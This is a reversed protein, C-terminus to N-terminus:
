QVDELEEKVVVFVRNINKFDVSPEVIIETLLNDDDYKVEKIQGIHIGKALVGLGSTVITNGEEVVAHPDFLEGSIVSNVSGHLIGDYTKDAGLVEFGISTKNDIITVVKGWNAGVEYVLGVLGNGNMVASYKTIGDDTGADIIFMNYWNGTDKGIINATIYSDIRMDDVYNLVSKLENLDEYEEETLQAEILAQNLRENEALLTKNEDELEWISIIPDIKDGIFKGVNYVGKQIPTVIRGVVNEVFTVRERGGMTLGMIAIIMIASIFIAWRKLKQYKEM